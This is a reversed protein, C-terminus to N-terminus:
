PLPTCRVEANAGAAILKKKLQTLISVVVTTLEKLSLEQSGDRDFRQFIERAEEEDVSGDELAARLMAQGKESTQKKPTKKTKKKGKKGKKDKKSDPSLEEVAVSGETEEPTLREVNAGYSRKRNLQKEYRQRRAEAKLQKAELERREEREVLWQEQLAERFETETEYGLARRAAIFTFVDPNANTAALHLPLAGDHNRDYLAEAWRIVKPCRVDALGNTESAIVLKLVDLNPNSRAAHHV